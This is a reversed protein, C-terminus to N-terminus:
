KGLVKRIIKGLDGVRYPKTLYGYFGMDLFQRAMEENDYGSAIIACVEPHLERLAKFTQEGGMGGIITLDMIVIDYPRGINLYRKYLQVAEEGDKALDCKYELSEIMNKTLMRIQEDDDMFLIRGTRTAFRLSPARRAEVGEPQDALPLFVTFATGHGVESEVGMQGGHRKVISLVTALGLGTGSKKTTFFPDFIKQLHEPKIGSGNDQVAIQVYHGAALPAVQGEALVVNTATIWIQGTGTTMAQIANIILNQFVQLMQARDVCVTGTDPEVKLEVKVTSGAAALRHAEALLDAPKVVQRVSSGGKAFMLLQKSLGKAALCARESNELGSHDRNDKAISVGGLITTLLNNFDHAIGGALQGLSEFRNARILEEPTLSMEGPHRFVLVAGAPRGTADIVARTSFAIPQPAGIGNDLLFEINLTTAEGTSIAKAIPSEGPQGSERHVLRFLDWAPVGISEEGLRGLLQEAKANLYVIQGSADALLVAEALEALLVALHAAPLGPGAEIASAEALPVAFGIVRQLEKRRSIHRVIGAHVLVERNERHRLRLTDFYSVQNPHQALFYSQLGGGTEDMPLARLVSEITDPFEADSYGLLSKFGPSLWYLGTAFDLDFLGVRGRDGLQQLREEARLTAEEFEKRDAIDLHVGMVRQLAGNPGFVQLGVSQIWVFHGQMHRLRFELSFQRTGTAGARAQRDPAASSDDPHILNLWTEYTNPLASDAYGLMRKWTPSYYMENKQFNLDFFGLPSREHLQTLFNEAPAGAGAAAVPAAPPLTIFALYRGPADGAKELRVNADFSAAEKPQLRLSIPHNQAAALLVEWQSQVWGSERSVVDFSFLNPFLDGVLEANGAQWLACAAASAVQIRGDTDLVLVISSGAALLKAASHHTSHASLRTRLKYNHFHPALGSM